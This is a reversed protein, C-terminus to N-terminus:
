GPMQGRGRATSKRQQCLLQRPNGRNRERPPGLHTLDLSGLKLQIAVRNAIKLRRHEITYCTQSQHVEFLVRGRTSARAIVAAEACFTERPVLRFADSFAAAGLSVNSMRACPRPSAPEPLPPCAVRSRWPRPTRRRVPAMTDIWSSRSSSW